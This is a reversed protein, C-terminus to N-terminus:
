RTAEQLVQEIQEERRPRRNIRGKEGLVAGIAYCVLALLLVYAIFAKM